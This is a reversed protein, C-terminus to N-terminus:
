WWCLSILSIVSHKNYRLSLIVYSSTYKIPNGTVTIFLYNVNVAQGSVVNWMLNWGTRGALENWNESGHDRSWNKYPMSMRYNIKKILHSQTQPYVPPGRFSIIKKTHVEKMLLHNLFGLAKLFFELLVQRDKKILHGPLRIFVLM